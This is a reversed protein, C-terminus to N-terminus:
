QYVGNVFRVVIEGNKNYGTGHWPKDDKYEGVFMRGDSLTMTGQGNKKGDKHEGVYKSGSSVTYTGQGNQNGDKYEWVYKEGNTM